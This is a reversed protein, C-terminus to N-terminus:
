RHSSRFQRPTCQMIQRFARSFESSCSFGVELAIATTPTQTSKLLDAAKRIRLNLLYQYPLIGFSVKFARTFHFRSLGVHEALTELDIRQDLNEALFDRIVRKAHSTLGGACSLGM